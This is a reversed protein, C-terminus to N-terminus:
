EFVFQLAYLKAKSAPLAGDQTFAHVLMRFKKTM